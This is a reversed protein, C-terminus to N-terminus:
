NSPDINRAVQYYMFGGVVALVVAFTYGNNSLVVKLLLVLCAVIIIFLALSTENPINWACLWCDKTATNQNSSLDQSNQREERLISDQSANSDDFPGTNSLQHNEKSECEKPDFVEAEVNSIATNDQTEEHTQPSHKQTQTQSEQEATAENTYNLHCETDRADVKDTVEISLQDKDMESLLSSTGAPFFYVFTLVIIFMISIYSIINM